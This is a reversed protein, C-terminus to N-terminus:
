GDGSLGRLYERLAAQDIQGEATELGPEPSAYTFPSGLLPAAIRTIRGAPGMGVVVLPRAADLLGLLRANDAPARVRCAVKVVDAGDEFGARIVRELEARPPTREFDHHSVIVRCGRARAEAVLERKYAEGAEAELDVYSAGAAIAEALLAKRESESRAGPRCAAVLLRPRSFLARVKEADVDMSDIRIEAFPVTDLVALCKEFAVNGISVCIM